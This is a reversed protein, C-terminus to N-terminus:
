QLSSNFERPLKEIKISMVISILCYFTFCTLGLEMSTNDTAVIDIFPNGSEISLLQSKVLSRLGIFAMFIAVVFVDAMSWKSLKTIIYLVIKSKRNFYYFLSLLMKSLPFVVSFFLILFGVLMTDLSSDAILLEVVELISKSQYFIVQEGFEINMGVLKFDFESVRADVSIMPYYIGAYLFSLGAMILSVIDGLGIKNQPFLAILILLVACGYLIKKKFDIREEIPQIRRQIEQGCESYSDCDYLEFYFARFETDTRPEGLQLISYLKENIIGKVNKQNRPDNLQAMVSDAFDPIENKIDEFDIVIRRLFSAVKPPIIGGLTSKDEVVSRVKELLDRLLNEIQRKLTKKDSSNFNFENINHTLVVYAKVKWEDLSLLGYKINLVKSYDENYIKKSEVDNKVDLVIFSVIVAILLYLISKMSIAIDLHICM